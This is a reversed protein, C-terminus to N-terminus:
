FHFFLTPRIKRNEIKCKANQMRTNVLVGSDARRAEV